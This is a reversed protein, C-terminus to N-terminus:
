RVKTRCHSLVIKLLSCDVYLFFGLDLEGEKVLLKSVFKLTKIQAFFVICLRNSNLRQEQPDKAKYIKQLTLMLKKPKKHAACVHLIQILNSPMTALDLNALEKGKAATSPQETSKDPVEESKSHETDKPENEADKQGVNVSDIKIVVRQCPVWRDIIERTKHPLTASVLCSVIESKQEHLISLIEDIQRAMEANLAMRDAEDYVIIQLESFISPSPDTKERLQKLIDLLRGPTAAVVLSKKYRSEESKDCSVGLSNIQAEIDVGGYVPVAEVRLKCDDKIADSSKLMKDAIKMVMNMESSVQIALERTPCLVLGYAFSKKLDWTKQKASSVLSHVCRAVVPLAYSLTKGSGTQALGVINCTSQNSISTATLSDLLIPWMNLQIRSAKLQVQSISGKKKNKKQMVDLTGRALLFGIETLSLSPHLNSKESTENQAFDISWAEPLVHNSDAPEQRVHVNDASRKTDDNICNEQKQQRKRKGM